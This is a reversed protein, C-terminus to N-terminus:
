TKRWFPKLAQEIFKEVKQEFEEVTGNNIIKYNARAGIEPILLENEAKEEKMFQEFSVNKEGVKQSTERLRQFRKKVDATIYVMLNHPFQRVLEEDEKWRVGGIIVIDTNLEEMRKKLARSLAGEEFGKKMIVAIHQLNHRTTPIDWLNLTEVLVDSFRLDAIRKNKVFKNLIRVFTDKGSGKEGVLGIILKM